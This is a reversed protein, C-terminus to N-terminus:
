AKYCSETTPTVLSNDDLKRTFSITTESPNINDLNCQYYTVSGPNSDTYKVVSCISKVGMELKRDLVQM